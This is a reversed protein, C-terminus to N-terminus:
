YKRTNSIRSEASGKNINNSYGGPRPESLRFIVPFVYRVSVTQNFAMEPIWKKSKQVVRIAEKDLDPHASKIVKIDTLSGDKQISFSLVVRGQIGINRLHTPYILSRAVFESFKDKGPYEARRNAEKINTMPSGDENWYSEDKIEGKSYIIKASMQGNPFFYEANGDLKGDKMNRVFFKEGTRHLTKEIGNPLGNAFTQLDSTDGASNFYCLVGNKFDDTRYTGELGNREGNTVRYVKYDGNENKVPSTEYFADKVNCRDWVKNFYQQANLSLACLLLLASLIIKKM